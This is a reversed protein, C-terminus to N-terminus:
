KQKVENTQNNDLTLRKHFPRKEGNLMQKSTQKNERKKKQGDM